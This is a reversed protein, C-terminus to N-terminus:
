REAHSSPVRTSKPSSPSNGKFESNLLGNPKNTLSTTHQFTQLLKVVIQRTTMKPLEVFKLPFTFLMLKPDDDEDELM